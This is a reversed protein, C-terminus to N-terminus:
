GFGKSEVTGVSRFELRQKKTLEIQMELHQIFCYLYAFPVALKQNEIASLDKCYKDVM